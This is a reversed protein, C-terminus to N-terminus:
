ADPLDVKTFKKPVVKRSNPEPGKGANSGRAPGSADGPRANKSERNTVSSRTRRSRRGSSDPSKNVLATSSDPSSKGLSPNVKEDPLTEDDVNEGTALDMQGGHESIPVGKIREILDTNLIVYAFVVAASAGFLWGAIDFAASRKKRRRNSTSIAIKPGSSTGVNAFTQNEDDVKLNSLDPKSEAAVHDGINFEDNSKVSPQTTQGLQTDYEAKRLTDLLCIRAERLEEILNKALDAHEGSNFSTVHQIQRQSANAIVAPDTEFKELGLLRYHDIGAAGQRIGLWKLYPDFSETM